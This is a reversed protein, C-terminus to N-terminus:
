IIKNNGSIQKFIDVIVEKTIKDFDEERAAILHGTMDIAGPSMM